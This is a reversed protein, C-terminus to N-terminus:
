VQRNWFLAGSQSPTRAVRSMEVFRYWRTRVLLSLGRMRNGFGSLRRSTFMRIGHVFISALVALSLLRWRLMSRNNERHLYFEHSIHRQWKSALGSFDKRAPHYVRMSPIYRTTFGAAFARQGWDMDEAIEIGAFPGVQRHVAAGMALNGTGSFHRTKIYFRQRFAFVAEYAEIATLRLPDGFDIRVDGGVVATNPMPEVAAVAAALWGPAARCDADIFALVPANAAAIGRNRALGPGPKPELLITVQPFAASIADLAVHSGNDVVIIEILGHDLQQSVVSDLCRLLLEPMNLHPIIVSVRPTIGPPGSPSAITM